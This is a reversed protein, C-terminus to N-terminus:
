GRMSCSPSTPFVIARSCSWCSPPVLGSVCQPFVRFGGLAGLRGTGPKGGSGREQRGLVLTGAACIASPQRRQRMHGDPVGFAVGTMESALLPGEANPGLAVALGALPPHVADPPGGAVAALQDVVGARVVGLVRAVGGGAGVVGGGAHGDAFDDDHGAQGVEHILVDEAGVAGGQEGSEDGGGGSLVGGGAFALFVLEAGFQVADVGGLGAQHGFEGAEAAVGPGGGVGVAFADLVVV